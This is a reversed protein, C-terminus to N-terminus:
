KINMGDVLASGYVDADCASARRSDRVCRVQM